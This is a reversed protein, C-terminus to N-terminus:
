RAAAQEPAGVLRLAAPGRRGGWPLLPVFSFTVAFILAIVCGYFLLSSIGGRLRRRPVPRPPQRRHYQPEIFLHWIILGLLYNVVVVIALVTLVSSMQLEGALAHFSFDEEAGEAGRDQEGEGPV